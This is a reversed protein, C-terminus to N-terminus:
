SPPPIFIPKYTVFLYTFIRNIFAFRLCVQDFYDITIHLRNYASIEQHRVKWSKTFQIHHKYILNTKKWNIIEHIPFRKTKTASVINYRPLIDLLTKFSYFLEIEKYPFPWLFFHLLITKSWVPQGGGRHKLITEKDYFKKKLKTQSGIQKM